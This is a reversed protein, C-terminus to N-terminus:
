AKGFTDHWGSDGAAPRVSLELGGVDEGVDPAPLRSVAAMRTPTDVHTLILM